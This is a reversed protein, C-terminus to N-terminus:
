ISNIESICTNSQPMINKLYNVCTTFSHNKFSNLFSYFKNETNHLNFYHRFRLFNSVGKVKPQEPDFEWPHLYLLYTKDKKLISKVGSVFIKIPILRFYGGGGWHLIQNGIKLNSIPLEYFRESVKVPFGNHSNFLSVKGYRKNLNYSNYSSDYIYGSEEICRLVQQDLSFNPARFGYIPIGTIDELLKKSRELDQKFEKISLEGCLRHYFGHSAIEHGRKKIERILHPLREALWGLVFFTAKPNIQDIQNTQNTQDNQSIQDKENVKNNSSNLSVSELLDLIKHINKEVRLEYKSWSSFPIHKKFNEVQFWDEVDFTLLIIKNM